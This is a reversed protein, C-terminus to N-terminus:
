QHSQTTPEDKVPILLLADINLFPTYKKRPLTRKEYKQHITVEFTYDDEEFSTSVIGSFNECKDLTFIVDNGKADQVFITDIKTQYNEGLVTTVGNKTQTKYYYMGDEDGPIIDVDANGEGPFLNQGKYDVQVQFLGGHETLTSVLEEEGTSKFDEPVTVIALKYKKM